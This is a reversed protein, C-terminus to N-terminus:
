STEYPDAAGPDAVDVKALLLWGRERRLIGDSELEKMLESLYPPTVAVLQALEWQRLPLQLQIWGGRDSGFERALHRLVEELRRRASQCTHAAFQVLQDYVERSHMELMFRSLEADEIQFRLFSQADMRQVTCPTVAVATVALPRQLTTSTAGLMWRRFRLGVIVERGESSLRILKVLGRSLWYISEPTAGQRFFEVGPPFVHAPGWHNGILSSGPPRDRDTPNALLAHGSAAAGGSAAHARFRGPGELTRM